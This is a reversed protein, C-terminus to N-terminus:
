NEKEVIIINKSIEVVSVYANKSLNSDSQAKWITGNIEVEGWKDKQIPSVVQGKMGLLYNINKKYRYKALLKLLTTRTTILLTIGLLLFVLVQITFNKSYFTLILSVTASAVFWITTLQVTILEVIILLIIIIIWIFRM